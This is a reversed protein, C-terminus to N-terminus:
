EDGEEKTGYEVANWNVFAVVPKGDTPQLLYENRRLAADQAVSYPILGIEELAPM